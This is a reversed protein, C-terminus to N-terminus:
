QLSTLSEAAGGNLRYLVQLAVVQSQRALNISDALVRASEQPSHFGTSNESSVFDWRMQASRILQRAEALDEDTAGAGMAAVIVDMADLLAEESSRLLGATTRQITLVREQLQEEPVNHCTQCANNLNVLPSRIWHDSIKIGGQRIYPMHCDACSVGSRAHLGTSWLEFEPHQIKIMSAGTEAHVWDRFGYTDYHSEIDDITMGQSWPYTLTRNEGVFYYEVHCQACVYSRMDQRTAQALDVGRQELANILAPRTIRLEMTGPEHCDACSTGLHLQDRLDNYPTRNFDDWGMEAILQPAEAAHCNICAGPQNVVQVRETQAQDIQAYFHGREENHDVSFAYGAWLRIMAPYRELKSYPNSGGYPTEGYDTQTMMFRDYHFPFNRGWVAPDIEDEAIEVVQLPYQRAEQQRESINIM